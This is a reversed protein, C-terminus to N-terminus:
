EYKHINNKGPTLDFRPMRVSSQHLKVADLIRLLFLSLCTHKNLSCTIASYTKIPGNIYAKPTNHLVLGFASSRLSGWAHRVLRMFYM